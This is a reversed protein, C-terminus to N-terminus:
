SMEGMSASRGEVTKSCLWNAGGRNWREEEEEGRRSVDLEVEDGGM